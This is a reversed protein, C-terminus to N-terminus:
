GFGIQEAFTEFRKGLSGKDKQQKDYRKQNTDGTPTYTNGRRQLGNDLYEVPAKITDFFNEIIGGAYKDKFQSEWLQKRKNTMPGEMVFSTANAPIDDDYDTEVVKQERPLKIKIRMADERSSGDPNEPMLVGGFYRALPYSAKSDMSEEAAAMFADFGGRPEFDYTDLVYVEGDQVTVAFDGLTTRINDGISDINYNDKFISEDGFLQRVDKYTISAVQGERLKPHKSAVILKLAELMEGSVNDETMTSDLPNAFEPLISNIVGRIYFNKHQSMNNLMENFDLM